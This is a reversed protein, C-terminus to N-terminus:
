RGTSPRRRTTSAASSRRSAACASTTSCTTRPGRRRRGPAAADGPAVHPRPRHRGHLRHALGLRVVMAVALGRHLWRRVEESMGGARLIEVWWSDPFRLALGTIALGIFSVALVLHQWVENTTM